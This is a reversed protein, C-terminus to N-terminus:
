AIVQQCRQLKKLARALREMERRPYGYVPRVSGPMLVTTSPIKGARRWKWITVRSVGFLKAADGASILDSM